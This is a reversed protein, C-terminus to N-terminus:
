NYNEKAEIAKWKRNWCDDCYVGAFYRNNKVLNYEVLKGCDSCRKFGESYDRLYEEVQKLFEVRKDINEPINDSFIATTGTKDWISLEFKERTKYIGFAFEEGHVNSIRKRIFSWEYNISDKILNNAKELEAMFEDIDGLIHGRFSYWSILIVPEVRLKKNQAM